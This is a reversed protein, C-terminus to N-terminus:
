PAAASIIRSLITVSFCCAAAPCHEIRQSGAVANRSCVPNLENDLTEVMESLLNIIDVISIMTHVSDPHVM